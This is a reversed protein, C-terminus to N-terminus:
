TRVYAPYNVNESVYTVASNYTDPANEDSAWLRTGYPFNAPNRTEKLFFLDPFLANVAPDAGRVSSYKAGRELAVYDPQTYDIFESYFAVSAVPTTFQRVPKGPPPNPPRPVNPAAM